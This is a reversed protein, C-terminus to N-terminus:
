PSSQDEKELQGFCADEWAQVEPYYQDEALLFELLADRPRDSFFYSQGLYFHARATM